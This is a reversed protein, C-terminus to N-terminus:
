KLATKVRQVLMDIPLEHRPGLGDLIHESQASAQVHPLCLKLLEHLEELREATEVVNEVENKSPYKESINKWAAILMPTSIRPTTM